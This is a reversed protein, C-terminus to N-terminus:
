EHRLIEIPNLQTIRKAAIFIFIISALLATLSISIVQNLRIEYPFYNIFYSDLLSRSILSEIVDILTGLNLTILFGLILGLFIGIFSIIMGQYFFIRVIDSNNFGITKLIGVEREKSKVTMVVTSLLLISAVVIILSLLLGILFKELKIAQFLTGYTKKWTSFAYNELDIDLNFLAERTYEEAQLIDKTKLRISQTSDKLGKVKQGFSHSTLILSQDLESKLEYVGVIKLRFSKPLSGFITSKIDPTTLIIEDGLYVGLYMALWSGVIVTNPELLNEISGVSMYEPIITMEKENLVDIASLNVGRSQNNASIIGQTQIFPSAKLINTDKELDRILEEYNTISTENLILSHPIVGLIRNKLEREFGNMVSLTIILSAIGITMGSIALISTFSFLGGKPSRLYKYGLKFSINLL